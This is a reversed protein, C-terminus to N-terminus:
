YVYDSGITEKLGMITNNKHTINQGIDCTKGDEQRVETQTLTM